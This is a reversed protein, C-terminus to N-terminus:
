ALLQNIKAIVTGARTAESSAAKAAATAAEAEAIKDNAIRNQASEVAQLDAVMTTFATLVQDVTSPAVKNAFIRM